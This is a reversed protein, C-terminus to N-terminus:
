EEGRVLSMLSEFILLSNQQIRPVQNKVTRWQRRAKNQVEERWGNYDGRRKMEEAEAQVKKSVAAREWIVRWLEASEEKTPEAGKKLLARHVIYLYSIVTEATNSKLYREFLQVISIVEAAERLTPEALRFFEDRSPLNAESGRFLEVIARFLEPHRQALLPISVAFAAAEVSVRTSGKPRRHSKIQKM